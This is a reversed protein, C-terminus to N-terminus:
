QSQLKQLLMKAMELDSEFNRFGFVRKSMKTLDSIITELSNIITDRFLQACKQCQEEKLDFTTEFAEKIENLARNYEKNEILKRSLLLHKNMLIMQSRCANGGNACSELKIADENDQFYDSDREIIRRKKM